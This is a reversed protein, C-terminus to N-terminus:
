RPSPWICRNQFACFMCRMPLPSIASVDIVSLLFLKNKLFLGLSQHNDLVSLLFLSLVCLLYPHDILFMLM